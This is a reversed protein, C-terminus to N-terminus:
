RKRSTPKVCPAAWAAAAAAVGLMMGLSAPSRGAACTMYDGALRAFLYGIFWAVSGAALAATMRLWPRVAGETKPDIDVRHPTRM